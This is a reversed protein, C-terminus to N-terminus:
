FLRKIAKQVHKLLSYIHYMIVNRHKEKYHLAEEEDLSTAHIHIIAQRSGIQEDRNLSRSIIEILSDSRIDMSKLSMDKMKEKVDPIRIEVEIRQLLLETIIARLIHHLTSYEQIRIIKLHKTTMILVEELLFPLYHQDVIENLALELKASYFNQFINEAASDGSHIRNVLEILDKEKM